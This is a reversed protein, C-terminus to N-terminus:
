LALIMGHIVLLLGIISAMGVRSARVINPMEPDFITDTLKSM